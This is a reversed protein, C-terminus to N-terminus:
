DEKAEEKIREYIETVRNRQGYTQRYTDKKGIGDKLMGKEIELM